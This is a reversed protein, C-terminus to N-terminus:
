GTPLGAPREPTLRAGYRCAGRYEPESQECLATRGEAGSELVGIEEGLAEYCKMRNAAGPVGRCFAFGGETKATLDVFNKVLGVYCWPQYRPTGLSCLRISEAPDQLTYSSIDRGLSQYCWTRASRPAGDCIKAAGAIDGGNLHLIASTQMQYCAVWYKEEVVSCPHLPDEPDLAKFRAGGAGAAAHGGGHGSHEGGGAPEGSAALAAAPHHSMTANVINEMFAGGYCSQRDWDSVLLDCGRLARPLDHGYFMTLGHGLGHVCQFLLWRNGEESYPRCLANVEAAGPSRVDEFYAQIVGHYCGSQYIESCRVFVTAVDGRVHYAAIGIGHAFVHGDREVDHDLAGLRRLTQLAAEVGASSVLPLLQEEYCAIKAAPPKGGCAAHASAALDGPDASALPSVEGARPTTAPAPDPSTRLLLGGILLCLALATLGVQLRRKGSPTM